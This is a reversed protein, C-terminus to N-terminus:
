LSFDFEPDFVNIDKQNLNVPLAYGMKKFQEIPDEEIYAFHKKRTENEKKEIEEESAFLGRSTIQSDSLFFLERLYCFQALAMVLDDTNSIGELRGRKSWGFTKLESIMRQSNIKLPATTATKEKSLFNLMLSLMSARNGISTFIGPVLGKGRVKEFYFNDYPPTDTEPEGLGIWQCIGEGMSNREVSIKANNYYIGIMKIIRKFQEVSPKGQFEACQELTELDIVHITSTDANRGTAVDCSLGYEKGKIPDHWIWLGKIYNFKPDFNEKAEIFNLEDAAYGEEDVDTPKLFDMRIPHVHKLGSLVEEPIFANELSTTELGLVERNYAHLGLDTKMQEHWEPDSYFENDHVTPQIIKYIATNGQQITERYIRVYENNEQVEPWTSCLMLQSPLGNIDFQKKFGPGLAPSSAAFIKKANKGYEAVEDLILMSLSSSRGANPTNPLSKIVSGNKFKIKSKNNETKPAKLWTPLNSYVFELKELFEISEKQGISIITIVQSEFFIARYLAYCQLISSFGVQRVKKSIIRKHKLLEVAALRQWEYSHEKMRVKGYGPHPLYCYELFFHRFGTANKIDLCKAIEEQILEPTQM